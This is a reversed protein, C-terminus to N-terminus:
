VQLQPLVTSGRKIAVREIFAGVADGYYSVVGSIVPSGRQRSAGQGLINTPTDENNHM